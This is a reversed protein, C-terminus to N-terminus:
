EGKIDEIAPKPLPMWAIIKTDDDGDYADVEYYNDYNNTRWQKDDGNYIMLDIMNNWVSRNEKNRYRYVVTVIYLDTEEPLRDKVFIWEGM